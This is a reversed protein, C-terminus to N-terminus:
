TTSASSWRRCRTKAASGSSPRPAQPPRTRRDAHAGCQEAPVVGSSRRARRLTEVVPRHLVERLGWWGAALALVAGALAGVLPVLPSATWTSTSCTARWAGASWRRGGRQGPLGGAPRRRGARRAAGPAAPQRARGGRAHDRVRARAGRAHGHRRRVAGGRGAALTFGFLFEVARIVKDLVGQVQNITATMDVNTVNPFARVLANDFGKREPARFAGM